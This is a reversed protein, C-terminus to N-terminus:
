GGFPTLNPGIKVAISERAPDSVRTVLTEGRCDLEMQARLRLLQYARETAEDCLNGNCEGGSLLEPDWDTGHEDNYREAALREAESVCGREDDAQPNRELRVLHYGAALVGANGLLFATYSDAPAAESLYLVAYNQSLGAFHQWPDIKLAPDGTASIECDEAPSDIMPCTKREEYCESEDASCWRSVSTIEGGAVGSAAGIEGGSAFRVLEPHDPTVATIFGVAVDPEDLYESIEVFSQPPPPLYVDLVFEAPFDGDVEVDVIHLSGDEDNRFALAPILSGADDREVALEVRGHMSLLPEGTYDAPAQRDCACLWVALGALPAILRLYPHSPAVNVTM